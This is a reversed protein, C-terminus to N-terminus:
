IMSLLSGRGTPHSEALEGWARPPWLAQACGGAGAAAGTGTGSRRPLVPVPAAGIGPCCWHRPLVLAPAAGIGPCCCHRPLVPVLGRRSWRGSLLVAATSRSNVGGPSRSRPSIQPERQPLGASSLQPFCLPAPGSAAPVPTSRHPQPAPAIAPLRAADWGLAWAPARTRATLCGRAPRCAATM